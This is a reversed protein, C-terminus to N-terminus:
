VGIAEIFWYILVGFVVALVPMLITFLEALLTGRLSGAIVPDFVYALRALLDLLLLALHDQTDHFRPGTFSRQIVPSGAKKVVVGERRAPECIFGGPSM